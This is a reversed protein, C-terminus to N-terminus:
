GSNGGHTVDEPLAMRALWRSSHRGNFKSGNHLVHAGCNPNEANCGGRDAHQKEPLGGNEDVLPKLKNSRRPANEVDLHAAHGHAVSDDLYNEAGKTHREQKQASEHASPEYGIRALIRM